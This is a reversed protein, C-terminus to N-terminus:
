YNNHEVAKRGLYFGINKEKKTWHEFAHTYSEFFYATGENRVKYHFGELSQQVDEGWWGCIDSVVKIKASTVAIGNLKLYKKIEEKFKIENKVTTM